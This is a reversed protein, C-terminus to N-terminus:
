PFLAKQLEEFSGKWIKDGKEFWIHVQAEEVKRYNEGEGKTHDVTIQNWTKKNQVTVYVQETTEHKSRTVLSALSTKVLIQDTM